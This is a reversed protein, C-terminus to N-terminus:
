AAKKKPPIQHRPESSFDITPVKTGKAKERLAKVLESVDYHFEEGIEDKIKWLEELIENKM